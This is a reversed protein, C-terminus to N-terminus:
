RKTDTRPVYTCLIIICITDHTYEGSLKLVGFTSPPKFVFVFHNTDNHRWQFVPHTVYIHTSEVFLFFFCLCIRTGTMKPRPPSRSSGFQCTHRTTHTQSSHIKRNRTRARFCVRVFLDVVICRFISVCLIQKTPKSKTNLQSTPLTSSVSPRLRVCHRGFASFAGWRDVPSNSVHTADASSTDQTRYIGIPIECTTSCLKQYLRGYTRIWMDEKTIKMQTHM